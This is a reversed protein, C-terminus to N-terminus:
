ATVTEPQEAAPAQDGNASPQEVPPLDTVRLAVTTMGNGAPADTGFSARYGLGKASTHIRDKFTPVQENPIDVLLGYSRTWDTPKGSEVWAEYGAQVVQDIFKREESKEGGDKTRRHQAMVTADTVKTVTNRIVNVDLAPRAQPPTYKHRTATANTESVVDHGQGLNCKKGKHEGTTLVFGCRNRGAM